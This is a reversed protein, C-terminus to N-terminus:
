ADKQTEAPRQKHWAVLKNLYDIGAWDDDTFRDEDAEMDNQALSSIQSLSEVIRKTLRPRKMLVGLRGWGLNPRCDEVTTDDVEGRYVSAERVNSRTERELRASRAAERRTNAIAIARRTSAPQLQRQAATITKM